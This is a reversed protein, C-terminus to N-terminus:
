PMFFDGERCFRSPSKKINTGKTISVDKALFRKEYSMNWLSLLIM